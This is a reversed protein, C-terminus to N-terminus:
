PEPTLQFRIVYYLNNYSHTPFRYLVLATEFAVLNIHQQHIVQRKRSVDNVIAKVTTDLHYVQVVSSTYVSLRRKFLHCTTMLRRQSYQYNYTTWHTGACHM